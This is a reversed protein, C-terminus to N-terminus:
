VRDIMKANVRGANFFVATFEEAVQQDFAKCSFINVYVAQLRDLTHVVINSTRIFQVASIGSMHPEEGYEEWFMPEGHRTMDILDCLQIFYSTLSEKTFLTADCEHMDLLLEVGFPKNM